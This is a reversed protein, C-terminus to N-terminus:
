REYRSFDWGGQSALERLEKAKLRPIVINGSSDKLFGGQGRPIPAGDPTGVGIVSVLYNQTGLQEVADSTNALNVGDSILLIHGSRLGAQKLIGAICVMVPIWFGERVSRKNNNVRM